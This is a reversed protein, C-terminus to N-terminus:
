YDCDDGAFRAGACSGEGALVPKRIALRRSYGVIAGVTGAPIHPTARRSRQVAEFRL